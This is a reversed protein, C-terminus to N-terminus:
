TFMPLQKLHEKGYLSLSLFVSLLNLCRHGTQDASISGVGKKPDDTLRVSYIFFFFFNQVQQHRTSTSIRQQLQAVPWRAAAACEAPNRQLDRLIVQASKLDLTLESLM